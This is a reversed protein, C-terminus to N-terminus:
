SVNDQKSRDEKTERGHGERTTAITRRTGRSLLGEAIERGAFFLARLVDAASGGHAACGSKPPADRLCDATRERRATAPRAGARKTWIGNLRATVRGGRRERKHDRIRGNLRGRKTTRADRASETKLAPAMHPEITAAPSEGRVAGRNEAGRGRKQRDEKVRCTAPAETAESGRTAAKGGSAARPIVGACLVPFVSFASIESDVTRGRGAWTLVNEVGGSRTVGWDRRM